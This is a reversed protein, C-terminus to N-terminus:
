SESVFTLANTIMWHFFNPFRYIKSPVAHKQFSVTTRPVCHVNTTYLREGAGDVYLFIYIGISTEISDNTTRVRFM